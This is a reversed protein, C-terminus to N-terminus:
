RNDEVNFRWDLTAIVPMPRRDDDDSGSSPLGSQYSEPSRPWDLM